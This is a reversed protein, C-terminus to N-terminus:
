SPLTARLRRSTSIGQRSIYQQIGQASFLLRKGERRTFPFKASHRYLYDASIGLRGAAERVTILHDPQAERNRESTSPSMLRAMATAEVQRLTGLFLPLEDPQCERAAALLADQLEPTM